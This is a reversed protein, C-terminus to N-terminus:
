RSLQRCALQSVPFTLESVPRTTSLSSLKHVCLCVCGNLPRKGTVLRNLWYWFPLVSRSKVSALSLSHCHFRSSQVENWVSLWAQEGGSLKWLGFAREAAWGVTDFCQFLCSASLSTFDRISTSLSSCHYIWHNWKTTPSNVKWTPSNVQRHSPM